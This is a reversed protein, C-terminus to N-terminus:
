RRARYDAWQTPTLHETAYSLTTRPMEAAHRDLFELLLADDVRKGVERLMWGVAKHMLDERDSLLCEALVLTTSADGRTIFGYTSLIAVRREWLSDSAALEDLLARPRDFLWGGLITPASLDVLDWNNIRGRRVAALYADAILERAADNHNRKGSARSFAAVLLFAGASRHEHIASDLLEDIQDLPLGVFRKVVARVAPVKVGIFVDGEGYQGPGTKFYRQQAAASEPDAIEALAAVVGAATLSDGFRAAERNGQGM